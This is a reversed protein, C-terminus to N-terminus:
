PKFVRLESPDMTCGLMMTIYGGDTDQEGGLELLLLQPNDSPDETHYEIVAAPYPKGTAGPPVEQCSAYLTGWPKQQYHTSTATTSEAPAQDLTIMRAFDLDNYRSQWDPGPDEFLWYMERAIMDARNGPPLEPVEFYVRLDVEAGVIKAMLWVEDAGELRLMVWQALDNLEQLRLVRKVEYNLGGEADLGQRVAELLAQADSLVVLNGPQIHQWFDPERPDEM